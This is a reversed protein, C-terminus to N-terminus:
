REDKKEGFITQWITLGYVTLILISLITISLPNWHGFFPFQEFLPLFTFNYILSVIFAYVPILILGWLMKEGNIFGTGPAFLNLMLNTVTHRNKFKNIRNIQTRKLNEDAATKLAKVSTCAQCLKSSRPDLDCRKCYRKGCSECKVSKGFKGVVFTLMIILGLGVPLWMYNMSILSDIFANGTLSLEPKSAAKMIEARDLLYDLDEYNLGAAILHPRM